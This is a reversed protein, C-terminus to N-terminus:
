EFALKGMHQAITMWPKWKAKEFGTFDDSFRVKIEDQDEPTLDVEYLYEEDGHIHGVPEVGYGLKESGDKYTNAIKNKEYYIFNAATYDPEDFSRSMPESYYWDFFDYLEKIINEPYGDSHKYIQAVSTENGDHKIFRIQCRTSM